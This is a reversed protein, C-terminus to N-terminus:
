ITMHRTHLKPAVACISSSCRQVKYKINKIFGMNITAVTAFLYTTWFNFYEELVYVYFFLMCLNDVQKIDTYLVHKCNSTQVLYLKLRTIKFM